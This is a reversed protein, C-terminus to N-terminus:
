SLPHLQTNLKIKNGFVEHFRKLNINKLHFEGCYYSQMLNSESFSVIRKSKECGLIEEPKIIYTSIDKAPLELVETSGKHFWEVDVSHNLYYYFHDIPQNPKYAKSRNNVPLGQSMFHSYFTVSEILANLLVVLNSGAKTDVYFFNKGKFRGEVKAICTFSKKQKAVIGLSLRLGLKKHKSYIELNEPLMLAKAEVETLWYPATKSHWTLLLSDREILENVSSPKASKSDIHAAFGNSTKFQGFIRHLEHFTKREVFESYAKEIAEIYNHDTGFGKEDNKDKIIFHKLTPSFSNHIVEFRTGPFRMSIFQLLDNIQNEM